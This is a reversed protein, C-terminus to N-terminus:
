RSSSNTSRLTALQPMARRSTSRSKSRMSTIRAGAEKPEGPDGDRLIILGGDPVKEPLVSNREVVADPIAEFVVKVGSWYTYYWCALPPQTEYELAGVARAVTSNVGDAGIM